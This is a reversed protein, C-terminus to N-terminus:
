SMESCLVSRVADPHSQSRVLCDVADQKAAVPRDRIDPMSSSESNMMAPGDGGESRGEDEAARM